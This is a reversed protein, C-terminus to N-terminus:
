WFAFNIDLVVDNIKLLDQLKYWNASDTDSFKTKNGMWGTEDDNLEDKMDMPVLQNILSFPIYTNLISASGFFPRHNPNQFMIPESIVSNDNDFAVLNPGIKPQKLIQNNMNTMYKSLLNVLYEVKYVQNINSSSIGHNLLQERISLEKGGILREAGDYCLDGTYITGCTPIVEHQSDQNESENENSDDDLISSDFKSSIAGNEFLLKSLKNPKDDDTNTISIDLANDGAKNQYNIDLNDIRYTLLLNVLQYSISDNIKAFKVLLILGSDNDSSDSTNSNVDLDDNKLMHEFLDIGDQERDNFKEKLVIRIQM